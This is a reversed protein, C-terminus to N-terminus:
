KLAKEIAAKMEAYSNKSRAMGNDCKNVFNICAQLLEPAAAILKANERRRSYTTNGVKEGAWYMGCIETEGSYVETRYNDDEDIPRHAQKWEGKTGKFEM